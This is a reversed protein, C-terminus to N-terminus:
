YFSLYGKNSFQSCILTDLLCFFFYAFVVGKVLFLNVSCLVVWHLMLLFCYVLISFPFFVFFLVLYVFHLNLWTFFLM